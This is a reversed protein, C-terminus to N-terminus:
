VSVLSYWDYGKSLSSSRRVSSDKSIHFPKSSRLAITHTDSTIILTFRNYSLCEVGHMSIKTFCSKADGVDEAGSDFYQSYWLLKDSSNYCRSVLLVVFDLIIRDAVVLRAVGIWIPLVLWFETSRNLTVFFLLLPIRSNTQLNDFIILIMSMLDFLVENFKATLNLYAM